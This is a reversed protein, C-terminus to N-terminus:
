WINSKRGLFKCWTLYNEFTKALLEDVARDDLMTESSSKPNLRAHMNALLLILHERQNAVNGKQFGFWSQMWLFIDMQNKHDKTNAFPLSRVNFVACV